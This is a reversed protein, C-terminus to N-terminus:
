EPWDTDLTKACNVLEVAAKPAKLVKAMPGTLKLKKTMLGRIPDLKGTIVQKWTKVPAAITFESNIPTESYSAGRSEGHWLDLYLYTDQGGQQVVFCLDGEWKKAAEKYAASENLKTNLTQIWEDSPFPIAM